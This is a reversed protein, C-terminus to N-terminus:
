AWGAYGVHRDTLVRAGVGGAVDVVQGGVTVEDRGRHRGRDGRDIQGATFPGPPDEVGSGPAAACQGLQEPVEDRADAADQGDVEVGARYGDRAVVGIVRADIDADGIQPGDGGVSRFM